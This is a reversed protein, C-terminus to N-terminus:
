KRRKELEGAVESWPIDHDTLLASLHFVLDAIESVIRERPEGKSAIIVEAAEEGIKKLIKDRGANFLRASYSGEPRDRHRQRLVSMLPGLELRDASSDDFCSWAGTHCAPGAPIVDVLLTDRDCDAKMSVVRQRNGSTAGKHWLEARSRSWFWTEGSEVTRRLADENMWAVMLTAGTRADRIVATVLGDKFDLTAPDIM